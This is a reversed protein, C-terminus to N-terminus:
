KVARLVTRPDFSEDREILGAPQEKPQQAPRAGEIRWDLSRRAAIDLGFRREQQRIEGALSTSSGDTWFDHRLRAIMYLGEWDAELWRPAMPSRWIVSWWRHVQPHVRGKVGILPATLPPRKITKGGLPDLTEHTSAKNRRSRLEPEKPM